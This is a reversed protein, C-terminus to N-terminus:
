ETPIKGLRERLKGGHMLEKLWNLAFLLPATGAAISRLLLDLADAIAGGARPAPILNTFFFVAINAALTALWIISTEYKELGLRNIFQKPFFWFILLDMAGAFILGYIFVAVFLALMFSGSTKIVDPVGKLPGVFFSLLQLGLLFVVFGGVIAGSRFVSVFVSARPEEEDYVGREAHETTFDTQYDGPGYAGMGSESQAIAQRYAQNIEACVSTYQRKKEPATVTDPHYRKVRERYAKKIAFPDDTPPIGLITWCDKV